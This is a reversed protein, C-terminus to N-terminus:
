FSNGRLWSMSLDKDEIVWDKNQYQRLAELLISFYREFRKYVLEPMVDGPKRVIVHIETCFETDSRCPMLQFEALYPAGNEEFSVVLKERGVWELIEGEFAEIGLTSSAGVAYPSGPKGGTSLAAGSWKEFMEPRTLFRFARNQDCSLRTSKHVFNM